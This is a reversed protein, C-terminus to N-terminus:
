GRSTSNKQANDVVKLNEFADIAKVAEGASTYMGRLSKHVSGRGIAKIEMMAYNEHQKIDYGRYEM